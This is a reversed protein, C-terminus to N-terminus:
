EQRRDIFRGGLTRQNRQNCKKTCFISGTNCYKSCGMLSFYTRLVRTEIM